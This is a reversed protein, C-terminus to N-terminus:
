PAAVTTVTEIVHQVQDDTMEPFIPLSLTSDAFQDSAILEMRSDSFRSFAPQRHLPVPYHVGTAIGSHRLQLAVDSRDQVFIAFIHYVAHGEDLVTQTPIDAASFADTYRQAIARRKTTWAPLHKLKVRLVAAQIEDQRHNYGVIDHTYKDRRGHNRLKRVMDATSTANTTVAGADGFAGLNKGPYFSYATADSLAGVPQGAYRALHAQAADEIVSLNRERALRSIARMDCPNGHLHVPLIARTQSTIAGALTETTLLGTWRDVDAFVPTAGVHCVAEATAAFTISPVVVHDHDGIGAAELALSLASTGSSVAVAYDSGTIAAFENEFAEVHPGGIFRQEEVVNLIAKDVEERISELQLRLNNFPVDVSV